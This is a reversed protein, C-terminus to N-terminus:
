ISSLHKYESPLNGHLYVEVVLPQSLRRLMEKTPKSISYRQDETMDLRIIYQRSLVVVTILVAIVIIYRKIDQIKRNM